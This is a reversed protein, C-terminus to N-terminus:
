DLSYICENKLLKLHYTESSIDIATHQTWV